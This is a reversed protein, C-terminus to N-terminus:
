WWRWPEGTLSDTYEDSQHATGEFPTPEEDHGVPLQCHITQEALALPVGCAESGETETM